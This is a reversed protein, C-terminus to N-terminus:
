DPADSAIALGHRAMRDLTRPFSVGAAAAVADMHAVDKSLLEAGRRRGDSHRPFPHACGGAVFMETARSGGTSAALATAAQEVDLELAACLEVLDALVGVQATFAYNNVLKLIQGTGIGGAHVVLASFADIVPRAADVAPTEGGVMTTLTGTAARARGGSVPADVVAVGSRAASAGIRRCTEPHVTSHLALISGPRLHPLAADAVEVVDADNGVCVGVLDSRAALEAVSEVVTAGAARATDTQAIRRAFVALDFGARAIRVAMPEGQDGLGIFGVTTVPSVTIPSAISSLTAM